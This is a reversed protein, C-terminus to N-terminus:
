VSLNQVSPLTVTVPAGPNIITVEYTIDTKGAHQGQTVQHTTVKELYGNKNIKAEREIYDMSIRGSYIGSNGYNEEIYDEYKYSNIVFNITTSDGSQSIKSFLIDSETIEPEPPHQYEGWIDPLTLYYNNFSTEQYSSGNEKVYYKGNEYYASKNVTGQSGIITQQVTFIKKGADVKINDIITVDYKRGDITTYRGTEKTEYECTMLSSLKNDAENFVQLATKQPIASSVSRSSAASSVEASSLSEDSEAEDSSLGSSLSSEESSSANGQRMKFLLFRCSTCSMIIAFLLFASLIRKIM